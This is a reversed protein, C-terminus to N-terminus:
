GAFMESVYREATKLYLEPDADERSKGCSWAAIFASQNTGLGHEKKLWAARAAEEKPGDKSLLKCWGDISRGSKEELKALWARTMAVSPHVGYLSARRGRTIPMRIRRARSKISPRALRAVCSVARLRRRIAPGSHRLARGRRRPRAARSPDPSRCAAA